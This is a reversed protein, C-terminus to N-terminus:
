IRFDNISSSMLVIDKISSTVLIKGIRGANTNNTNNKYILSTRERGEVLGTSLFRKAMAFQAGSCLEFNGASGESDVQKRCSLVPWKSFVFLSVGSGM